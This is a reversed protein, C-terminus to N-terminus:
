KLSKGFFNLLAQNFAEPAEWSSAHGAGPIEALQAGKIAAAMARSLEPPTLSDNSGVLVLCPMEFSPLAESLDLRGAMASLANCLGDAKNKAMLALLRSGQASELAGASLLGPLMGECFARVGKERLSRIGAARKLKAPNGDADARTDCLALASLRGPERQAARLAVYGGMSLGCLAAKKLGLRDMLAFLDDVYAEM